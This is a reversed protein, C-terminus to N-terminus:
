GVEISTIRVRTYTQRHGRKVRVNKRRKFRCSTVRRSKVSDLVEGSVKAGEVYPTGLSVEGEKSFVLVRDFTVRDGQKWAANWNCLVVEGERVMHQGSRDHIVAYM